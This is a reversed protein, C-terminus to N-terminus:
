QQSGLSPYKEMLAKERANLQAEQQTIAANEDQLDRIATQSQAKRIADQDFEGWGMLKDANLRRFMEEGKGYKKNLIDSSTNFYDSVRYVNDRLLQLIQMKDAGASIIRRAFRFDADTVRGGKDLSKAKLYAMEILAGAYRTDTLSIKRIEAMVGKDADISNWKIKGNADLVSDLDFISRGSQYIDNIGSYVDGVLGPKFSDKSVFGILEKFGKLTNVTRIENETRDEKIKELSKAKSSKLKAADGALNISGKKFAVYNNEVLDRKEQEYSPSDKSVEAIQGTNANYYTVTEGFLKENLGQLYSNGQRIKRLSKRLQPEDTDISTQFAEIDEQTADSPLISEQNETLFTRLENINGIKAAEKLYRGQKQIGLARKTKEATTVMNATEQKHKASLIKKYELEAKSKERALKQREPEYDIEQQKAQAQLEAMRSTAKEQTTPFWGKRMTEFNKGGSRAILDILAM